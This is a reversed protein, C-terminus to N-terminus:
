PWKIIKVKISRTNINIFKLFNFYKLFIMFSFLFFIYFYILSCFSLWHLFSPRFYVCLRPGRELCSLSLSFLTFFFFFFLSCLHNFLLYFSIIFFTLITYISRLGCWPSPTSHFFLFSLSFFSYMSVHDNVEPGM